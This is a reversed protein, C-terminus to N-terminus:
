RSSDGKREPVVALKGRSKRVTKIFKVNSFYNLKKELKFYVNDNKELKTDITKIINICINYYNTCIEQFYM